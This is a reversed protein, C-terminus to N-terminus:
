VRHMTKFINEHQFTIRLDMERAVDELRAHIEKMTASAGAVDCAMTMVFYSEMVNQNVDIINVNVQALTVALRAIIGVKDQGTVTVICIQEGATRTKKRAM